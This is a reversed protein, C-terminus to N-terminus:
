EQVRSETRVADQAMEAAKESQQEPPRVADAPEDLKTDPMVDIVTEEIKKETERPRIEPKVIHEPASTAFMDGLQPVIKRSQESMYRAYAQYSNEMQEFLANSGLFFDNIVRKHSVLERKLRTLEDELRSKDRNRSSFRNILYGAVMGAIGSLAIYIIENTEM